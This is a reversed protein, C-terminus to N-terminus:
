SAAPSPLPRTFGAKRGAILWYIVGGILGGAAVIGLDAWDTGEITGVIEPSAYVFAASGIAAGFLGHLWPQRLAFFESVLAAALAPLCTLIVVIYIVLLGVPPVLLIVLPSLSLTSFYAPAGPLSSLTFYVIVVGILGTVVAALYAMVILLLRKFIHLMGAGLGGDANRWIM